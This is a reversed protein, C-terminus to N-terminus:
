NILFAGKEYTSHFPVKKHKCTAKWREVYSRYNSGDAVITAHPHLAIFRDLNIKPSNSLVVIDPRAKSMKYIGLTDILLLEKGRFRFYNPMERMMVKHISLADKYSNIIYNSTTHTSSDSQYIFLKNNNLLALESIKNKHLVALHSPAIKSNEYLFICTFCIVSFSALYCRLVSYKKLFSITCYIACYSVLLLPLSITIHKIVFESHSAVWHIYTNMQDIIWGYSEIFIEPVKGILACVIILLGYALIIALFPLIVINSLLFLGPFQHFYYLSLPLVGLQAAITVTATGWLLNDVYFQPKYFSFLWPQVWLIAMVAMYSLQFGVQYLLLPDYVLLLLASVLVADKSKRNGGLSSGIELFSFMTAARLVSPSLGTVFAFCWILSIILFSRVWRLRYWHIFRTLFRLILLIIGVHLGSVALIHMMGASAYDKALNKDINERQGLLLADMIALQSTTFNYAHLKTLVSERFRSASVMFSSSTKNSSILENSSLSLQGFIQKQRLYNGYDFQYPNKPFPLPQIDSKAYFWTGANLKKVLSDKQISLLLDGTTPQEDLAHVSVIYKDQFQSSKLRSKISFLLQQPKDEKANLFHRDDIRIDASYSKLYGLSMFLLLVVLIFPIETFTVKLATIHLLWLVIICLLGILIAISHNIAVTEYFVIGAIFALLINLIPFNIHKM